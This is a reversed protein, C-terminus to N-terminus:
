RPNGARHHGNAHRVAQCVLDINRTDLGTLADRLDVPIGEALGASLRLISAESSSCPLKGANLANIAAPWDIVAMGRGDLAPDHDVFRAVFDDRRLWVAHGILMEAAAEGPSFGEAHARLGTGLALRPPSDPASPLTTTAASAIFHRSAPVTAEPLQDSRTWVYGLGPDGRMRTSDTVAVTFGFIRTCAREHHRQDYHGLYGSVREIELGGRAVARHLVDLLTEGPLRVQATPLEWSQEVFGDGNHSLLLVTQGHRIVATAAQLVIGEARAAALLRRHAAASAAAPTV